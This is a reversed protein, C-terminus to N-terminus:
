HRSDRAAPHSLTVSSSGSRRLSYLPPNQSWSLIRHFQTSCKASADLVLSAIPNSAGFSIAYRLLLSVKQQKCTSSSFRARVSAPLSVPSDQIRYVIHYITAPWQSPARSGTFWGLESDRLPDTRNRRAGHPVHGNISGVAWALSGRTGQVSHEAEKLNVRFCPVVSRSEASHCSPAPANLYSTARPTAM